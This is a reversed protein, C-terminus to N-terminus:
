QLSLIVLIDPIHASDNEFNLETKQPRYHVLKGFKMFIRGSGKQIITSVSLCVPIFVYVDFTAPTTFQFTYDMALM